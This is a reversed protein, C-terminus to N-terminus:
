CRRATGWRALLAPTSRQAAAGQRCYKVSPTPLPVTSTCNNTPTSTPRVLYFRAPLWPTLIPDPGARGQAGDAVESNPMSLQTATHTSANYMYPDFGNTGGFTFFYSNGLAVMSSVPSGSESGPLSVESVTGTAASYLFMNVTGNGLSSASGPYGFFAVTSTAPDIAFDSPDLGYANTTTSDILSIAGTSTNYGFLSAKGSANANFLMESGVQAFAPRSSTLASGSYSLESVAGTATNYAYLTDSGSPVENAFLVESGNATETFNLPVVSVANPVSVESVAGTATNFSFLAGNGASTTGGFLALTSTAAVMDTPTLGSSGSLASTVDALAGTSVNYAFLDSPLDGSGQMLVDSGVTTMGTPNLAPLPLESLAQILSTGATTGDTVWLGESGDSDSGYFEAETASVMTLIQPHLGSSAEGTVSIESVAGTSTNYGYLQPHNSSDLGGFVVEGSLAVFEVPNLGGASAGAVSVESVVGTTANLVFLDVAGNADENAFFVDNGDAILSTATLGASNLNPVSIESSVGTATNYTFLGPNDSTDYGLFAVSSGAAAFATPSPGYDTSANAVSVESLTGTANNFVFLGQLESTDYGELVVKTGVQAITDPFLGPDTGGSTDGQPSSVESVANTATNYVFLQTNSSSDTAGMVALTGDATIGQPSSAVAFSSVVGTALNLAFLVPTGGSDTGNFLAQGNVVTLDSPLLGSASANPISVESATGTTNNYVFVGTNGTSDVGFFVAGTPTAILSTPDLGIAATSAGVVSVESTSAATGDAFWLDVSGASNEDVFLTPTSSGPM